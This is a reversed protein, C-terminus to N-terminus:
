STAEKLSTIRRLCVAQQSVRQKKKDFGEKVKFSVYAGPTLEDPNGAFARTEFYLNKKSGEVSLFGAKGHPLLNLIQGQQLPEKDIVEDASANWYQTLSQMLVNVTPLTKQNLVALDSPISWQQELRLAVVLQRHELARQSDTADLLQALLLYLHIKKSPEGWSRAADIACSLSQSLQGSQLYVEALEKKLFWDTKHKLLTYYLDLAKDTQQLSFFCRALRRQFWIQQSGSIDDQQLITECREACDTYAGLRFLAETWKSWYRLWDSPLTRTKHRDQFTESVKSLQEPELFGLLRLQEAPQTALEVARFVTRVVPSYRDPACLALIQDVADAFDSGPPNPKIALHYLCWAQLSKLVDLDPDLARADTSIALADAYNHQKYLCWAYAWGDWANCHELHECWLKKFLPLAKDIEGAKRAAMAQKRWEFITANM